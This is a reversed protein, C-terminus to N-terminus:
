IEKNEKIIQELECCKIGALTLGNKGYWHRQVLKSFTNVSVCQLNEIDCNSNNGDIFIIRHDKPIKGYYTEWTHHSLLKWNNKAKYKYNTIKIKTVGNTTSVIQGIPHAEFGIEEKHIKLTDIIHHALASDKINCNFKLNFLQTLQLYNYNQRNNLLWENEEKTYYHGNREPKKPCKLSRVAYRNLTDPKRYIGFEKEFEKSLQTQTYNLRNKIIWEKQEKTYKHITNEQIKPLKLINRCYRQLYKSYQKIGFEKEFQNELQIGKLTRHKYLWEDQEKTYRKCYKKSCNLKTVAYKGLAAESKYIGFQKEFEIALQKGNYKDRNQIIWQDQEETYYKKYM